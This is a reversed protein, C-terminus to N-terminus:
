TRDLTSKQSQHDWPLCLLSDWIREQKASLHCASGIWFFSHLTAWGLAVQLWDHARTALDCNAHAYKDKPPKPQNSEMKRSWRNSWFSRGQSLPAKLRQFALDEVCGPAQPGADSPIGGAWTPRQIKVARRPIKSRQSKPSRGIKGGPSWGVPVPM